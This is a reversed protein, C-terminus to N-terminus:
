GTGIRSGSQAGGMWEPEYEHLVGTDLYPLTVAEYYRAGRHFWRQWADQWEPPMQEPMWFRAPVEMTPHAQAPIDLDAVVVGAGEALSRRARVEGDAAVIMAEGLYTSDYAVDPLDPSYFGAFRGAQSGHIVPVGLMRAFQVPAQQLMRLNADRLPHDEGADDPLTWWCSAGLALRVKGRLREVTRARILEWCLAAGVPGIPSNLIGDDDARAGTYYCNEWYTPADKDHRAIRGDPTALLFSNYVQGDRRALFSGGVVASGQRALDRLLRMPAGDWPGIADLMGPHFAAASTFMEPLVIWKAGKALAERLLQEAQALNAQMDGLVPQMQIAAARLRTAKVAFTAPDPAAGVRQGLVWAVGAALLGNFRRRTLRRDSM